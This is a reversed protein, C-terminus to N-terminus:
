YLRKSCSKQAKLKNARLRISVRDPAYLAMQAALFGGQSAGLVFAKKIGLADMVQVFAYASDWISWAPSKTKTAGHGLPELALLNMYQQLSPDTLQPKFLTSTASFGAIMILTAKSGVLPKALKYGVTIGGLHSVNV